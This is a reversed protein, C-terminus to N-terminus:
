LTMFYTTEHYVQSTHKSTLLNRKHTYDNAELYHFWTHIFSEYVSVVYWKM